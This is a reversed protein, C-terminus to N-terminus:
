RRPLFDRTPELLQDSGLAGVLRRVGFTLPSLMDGRIGLRESLNTPKTAALREAMQLNMSFNLGEHM